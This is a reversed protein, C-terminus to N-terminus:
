THTAFIDNLDGYKGNNWAVDDRWSNLGLGLANIWPARRVPAKPKHREHITVNDFNDIDRNM